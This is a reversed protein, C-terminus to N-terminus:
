IREAVRLTSSKSRSNVAIEKSSPKIKDILKLIPKYENPIVPLGKFIKNVESYKKFLNKCIKDELSHFTIVCIRGGPNLMNIADELAIGLVELENNVEIRIAQFVRRAPNTQRKYKDPVSSMIIDVLELTTNIKSKERHQIIKKAISKSYREEGYSYFIRVLEDYSYENVVIKATLLNRKDMRMDLKSDSTYSFGRSVNDIQPSSVGLDFLIGDVKDINMRKLESKLNVFNSNIIEFNNSIKNLENSSYEVADEDQDFAYLWGRKIRKLIEKSHGAYGLTCDVYILGDRINLGAISEDLLVSKHM